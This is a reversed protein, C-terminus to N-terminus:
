EETTVSTDFYSKTGFELTRSTDNYEAILLKDKFNNILSDGHTLLLSHYYEFEPQLLIKIENM